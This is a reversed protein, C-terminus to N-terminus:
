IKQVKHYFIEEFRFWIRFYKLRNIQPGSLNSDHFFHLAFIEKCVGKLIIQIRSWSKALQVTSYFCFNAAYFLNTNKRVSYVKFM